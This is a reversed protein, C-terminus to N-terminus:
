QKLYAKIDNKHDTGNASNDILHILGKNFDVCILYIHDGHCVPPFVMEFNQLSMLKGDENFSDKMKQIFVALKKDDTDNGIYYVPIIKEVDSVPKKVDVPLYEYPSRLDPGNYVDLKDDDLDPISCGVDEASQIQEDQKFIDKITEQSDVADEAGVNGKLSESRLEENSIKKKEKELTHESREVSDDDVLVNDKEIFKVGKGETVSDEPITTHSDEVVRDDENGIQKKEKEVDEVKSLIVEDGEIVSCFGAAPFSDDVKDDEN